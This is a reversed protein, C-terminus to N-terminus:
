FLIIINDIIYLQPLFVGRLKNSIKPSFFKIQPNFLNTPEFYGKTQDVWSKVLNLGWFSHSFPLFLSWM